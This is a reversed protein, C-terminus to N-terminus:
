SKLQHNRLASTDKQATATRGQRLETGKKEELSPHISNRKAPTCSM